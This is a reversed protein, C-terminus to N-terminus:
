DTVNVEITNDPAIDLGAARLVSYVQSKSFTGNKLVSDVASQDVEVGLTDNM